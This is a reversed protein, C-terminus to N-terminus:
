SINDECNYKLKEEQFICDNGERRVPPFKENIFRNQTDCWFYSNKAQMM